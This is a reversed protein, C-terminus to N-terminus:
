GVAQRDPAKTDRSKHHVRHSGLQSGVEEGKERQAAPTSEKDHNKTSDGNGLPKVQLRPRGGQLLRHEDGRDGCHGQVIEFRVEPQESPSSWLANRDSGIEEM